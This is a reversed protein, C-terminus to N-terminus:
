LAVKRLLEAYRQVGGARDFSAAARRAQAGLRATLAPDARLKMIEGALAAADQAPVTLGCGYQRTLYVVESSECVSAIYPRGSAMVAYLKSPLSYGELGQKLPVLFVDASSFVESLIERPQFPLFQVNPLSKQRARQELPAKMIGEGVFVFKIDPQQRLQDAADLVFELGSSAGLNGAYMVVFANDLGHLSSFQNRKDVPQISGTDAWDPILATRGAAVGKGDILRRRMTEGLAIVAQARHLYFKVSRDLLFDTLANNAGRLGQAAEPFLDRMSIVLPVRFRKAMLWGALGIIPPDTLTMVVDPRPLTLAAMLSLVFYSLYNAVRGVFSRPPFASNRARVVRVGNHCEETFMGRTKVAAPAGGVGILPMGVVVTVACGHQRVLDECLETLLQGTATVDPYYSRNFCVVQLTM